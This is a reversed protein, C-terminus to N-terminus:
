LINFLGQMTNVNLFELVFEEISVCNSSVDVYRIILSIQEQNRIDTTCYLIVSFYKAEKIIQVIENNIARALLLILENQINHGLYYVCTEDNTNPRVHEQVIPDFSDLMEILGLFNGNSNQHLKENTDHFVLNHKGLFKVISIIRLM